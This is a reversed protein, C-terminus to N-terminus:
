NPSTIWDEGTPSTDYDNWRDMERYILQDSAPWDHLVQWGCGTQGLTTCSGSPVGYTDTVFTGNHGQWSQTFISLVHMQRVTGRGNGYDIVNVDDTIPQVYSWGDRVNIQVNVIGPPAGWSRPYWVAETGASTNPDTSHIRQGQGLAVDQGDNQLPLLIVFPDFDARGFLNGYDFTGSAQFTGCTEDEPSVPGPQGPRGAVVPRCAQVEVVFGHYRHKIGDGGSAVHTQLRFATIYSGDLGIVDNDEATLDRRTYTKWFRHGAELEHPPVAPSGVQWGPSNFWAGSVGFIDDVLGPDDGHEHDFRCGQAEDYLDHWARVDHFCMPVGPDPTATPTPAPTATAGPEATPTPTAVPPPPGVDEGWCEVTTGRVRVEGDCQQSWLLSMGPQALAPTVLIVVLVVALIALNRTM